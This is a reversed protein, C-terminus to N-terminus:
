LTLFIKKNQDLVLDGLNTLTRYSSAQKICGAHSVEKAPQRCSNLSRGCFTLFLSVQSWRKKHRIKQKDKLHTVLKTKGPLTWILKGGYPTPVKKPPRLRVHTNHVHSAAEDMTAVLMKVYTNVTAGEKNLSNLYSPDFADDFFIHAPIL